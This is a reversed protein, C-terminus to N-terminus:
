GCYPGVSNYKSTHQLAGFTFANKIKQNELITLNRKTKQKQTRTVKQELFKELDLTTKRVHINKDESIINIM